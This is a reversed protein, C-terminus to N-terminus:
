TVLQALFSSVGKHEYLILAFGIPMSVIVISFANAFLLPRLAPSVKEIEILM